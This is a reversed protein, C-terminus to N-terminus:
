KSIKLFVLFNKDETPAQPQNDTYYLMQLRDQNVYFQSKIQTKPVVM